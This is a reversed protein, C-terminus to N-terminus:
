AVAKQGPSPDSWAVLALQLLAAHGAAVHGHQVPAPCMQRQVAPAAKGPGSLRLLALNRSAECACAHGLQMCANDHETSIVPRWCCGAGAVLLVCYLASWHMDACSSAYLSPCCRVAVCLLACCHM